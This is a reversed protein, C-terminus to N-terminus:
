FQQFNKNLLAMTSSINEKSITNIAKTQLSSYLKVPMIKPM